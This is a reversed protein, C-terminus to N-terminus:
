IATPEECPLTFQITLGREPNATAWLEGGHAKIISRSLSLGIGLGEDRTSYFPEFMLEVVGEDLPPGSDEVAVLLSGSEQRETRITLKGHGDGAHEMSELGNNVLNLIVQQLEIANGQIQPLDAALDLCLEVNCRLAEAQVFTEIGRITENIELPQYDVDDKSMLARLRSIMEGARKAAGAIDKLAGDLDTSDTVGQELFRTAARANALIAALPQNLEHALAASFEGMTAVRSLHALEAHHQRREEDARKRDTIDYALVYFGETEGEVGPQPLLNAEIQRWGKHRHPM